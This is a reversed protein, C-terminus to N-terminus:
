DETIVEQVPYMEMQSQAFSYAKTKETEEFGEVDLIKDEKSRIEVQFRENDDLDQINGQWIVIEAGSDHEFWAVTDVLESSEPHKTSTYCKWSHPIDIRSM